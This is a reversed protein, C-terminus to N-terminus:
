ETMKPTGFKRSRSQLDCKNSAPHKVNKVIGTIGRSITTGIMWICIQEVENKRKRKRMGRVTNGANAGMVNGHRNLVHGVSTVFLLLGLRTM